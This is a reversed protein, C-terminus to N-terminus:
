SLDSSAEHARLRSIVEDYAADLRTEVAVCETLVGLRLGEQRWLGRPPGLGPPRGQAGLHRHGHLCVAHVTFRPSLRWQRGRPGSERVGERLAIPMELRFLASMQADAENRSDV